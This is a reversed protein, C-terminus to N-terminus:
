LRLRRYQCFFVESGEISFTYEYVVTGMTGQEDLSIEDAEYRGSGDEFSGYENSLENLLDGPDLLVERFRVNARLVSPDETIPNVVYGTIKTRVPKQM